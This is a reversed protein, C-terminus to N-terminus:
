EKESVYVTCDSSVRLVAVNTYHPVAGGGISFDYYIGSPFYHDSMTATASAGGFRVYIPGTAYLSVVKTADDFAISNRASNATAAIAHAGGTAKLRIAPIPNSDDDLPLITPM